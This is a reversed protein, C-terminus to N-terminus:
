QDIINKWVNERNKEFLFINENYKILLKRSWYLLKDKLISIYIKPHIISIYKSYLAEHHPYLFIVVLNIENQM